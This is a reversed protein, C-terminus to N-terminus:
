FNSEIRKAVDLCVHEQYLDSYIQIGTPLQNEIGTALAVSPLGLVSGLTLFKTASHLLSLGNKEDLDADVPWIECTITPCIIAPYKEFLLSWQRILSARTAHIQQYSADDEQLQDLAQDVMKELLGYTARSVIPKMDEMTTEYDCALLHAWNQHSGNLDPCNIEEVVYGQETLIEGAQKIKNRIVEPMEVDIILAVKKFTKDKILPADYSFPDRIDRGRMVDFVLSLDSINNAMPGEVYMLQHAAGFDFPAISRAAAVAGRTPKLGHIGACFSPARISGGIDSGVAFGCMNSAVAVADGGSSGMTTLNKNWPNITAGFSPNGTALRLGFESMNGRGIVIAGEKKLRSVAPADKTPQIKSLAPVGMHTPSGLCDISSKVSFPVGSLLGTNNKADLKKAQYFADEDLVHTLANLSPNTKKIHNLYDTVLEVASLKKQRILKALEVVPIENLM